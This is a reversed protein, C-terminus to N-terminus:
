QPVLASLMQAFSAPIETSQRWDDGRLPGPLEERPAPSVVLRLARPHFYASGAQVAQAVSAPDEGGLWLIVGAFEVLTADELNGALSRFVIELGVEGAPADLRISVPRAGPTNHRALGVLWTPFSAWARPHILLALSPSAAFGRQKAAAVVRAMEEGAASAASPIPGSDDRNRIGSALAPLEATEKPAVTALYGQELLWVIALKLRSPAVGAAEELAALTTRGRRQVELLVWGVPIEPLDSPAKLETGGRAFRLTEAPKPLHAARRNTEDAIWAAELLIGQVNIPKGAQVTNTPLEPTLRFSGNDFGLMELIADTNRLRARQASLIKGDDVVISGRGSGTSIEVTGTARNQQLTQLVEALSFTRLSGQLVDAAHIRRALLGEIRVLVEEPDFPKTLFDDAGSRLGRVRNTTDGIASLMMIPLRRTHPNRRLDELVEWGTRHPMMVDLILADPSHRALIDEVESPDTTSLVQHGASEFTAGLVQLIDPDDDVLLINPM